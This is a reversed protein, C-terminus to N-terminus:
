LTPSVEIIRKLLEKNEKTIKDNNSKQRIKSLKSKFKRYNNIYPSLKNDISSTQITKALRLLLESNEKEIKKKLRLDDIIKRNSLPHKKPCSTDITPLINKIRHIHQEYLLKDYLKREPRNHIDPLM